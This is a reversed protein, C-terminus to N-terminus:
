GIRERLGDIDKREGRVRFFAGETDAREELV